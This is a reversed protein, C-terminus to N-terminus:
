CRVLVYSDRCELYTTYGTFAGLAFIAVGIALVGFALHVSGSAYARLRTSVSTANVKGSDISLAAFAGATSERYIREAHLGVETVSEYLSVLGATAPAAAQAAIQGARAFAYGYAGMATLIAPVAFFGFNFGSEHVFGVIGIISTIAAGVWAPVSLSLVSGVLTSRARALAEAEVAYLTAGVHNGKDLDKALDDLPRSLAWGDSQRTNIWRASDAAGKAVIAQLVKRELNDSKLDTDGRAMTARFSDALVNVDRITLM